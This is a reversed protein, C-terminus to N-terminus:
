GHHPLLSAFLFLLVLLIILPVAIIVWLSRGTTRPICTLNNDGVLDHDSDQPVQHFSESSGSPGHRPKPFSTLRLDDDNEEILLLPETLTSSSTGDVEGDIYDM